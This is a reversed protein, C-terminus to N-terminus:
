YKKDVYEIWGGAKVVDKYFPSIDFSISYKEIKSQIELKQNDIDAWIELDPDKQYIAEIKDIAAKPLEIVLLGNNYANQRFIRAFNEAIIIQYHNETFVWVAHERSSGCGFNARSLIVKAEKFKKDQPNFNEMKLDELIFPAIAKKDVETLYKAPIIEDTNIDNRNLFFVKGGIKQM